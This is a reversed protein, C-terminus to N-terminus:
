HCNHIKTEEIKEEGGIITVNPKEVKPSLYPIGLNAGRIILIGGFIILMIPISKQLKLRFSSTLYDKIWPLLIMVPLTGIGFMIMFVIGSISNGTAMAGVLAFYVLGCPLIGNLLGLVYNNIYGQKRLYKSISQQLHLLKGKLLKDMISIKRNILIMISSIVILVGLIISLQQQIGMLFLGQGFIGFIAGLSAYTSIRGANYLLISFIRSRFSNSKVPIALAIPGCMGLCHFNSILGLSLASWIYIM